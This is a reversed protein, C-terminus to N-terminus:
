PSAVCTPWSGSWASAATAWRPEAPHVPCVMPQGIPRPRRRLDECEVRPDPRALASCSLDSRSRVRITYEGGSWSPVAPSPDGVSAGWGGYGYRAHIGCALPTPCGRVPHAPSPPHRHTISRRLWDPVPSPDAHRGNEQTDSRRGYYSGRRSSDDTRQHPREPAVLPALFSHGM